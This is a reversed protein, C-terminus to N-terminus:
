RVENRELVSPAKQPELHERITKAAQELQLLTRPFWVPVIESLRALKDQVSHTTIWNSDPDTFGLQRLMARVDDYHGHKSKLEENKRELDHAMEAVRKSVMWGLKQNERKVALWNQWHERSSQSTFREVEKIIKTRCMLIYRYISDPIAVQRFPAKKKTVLSEGTSSIWILGAAPSVEEARIVGPPSVFYFVNCLPLYGPWKDDALFDSRNVKVEYGTVCPNAWSKRMAWGDLRLHPGSQTPGDKCEPVFVDKDHRKALLTVINNASITPILENRRGNREMPGKVDRSM